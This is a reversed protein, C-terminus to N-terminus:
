ECPGGALFSGDSGRCATYWPRSPDKSAEGVKFPLRGTFARWALWHEESSMARSLPILLRWRPSEETSSSTSHAFWDMGRFLARMEDLSPVPDEDVDFVLLCVQEVNEKNRYDGTFVAPSWMRLQAKVARNEDEPPDDFVPRHQPRSLNEVLDEWTIFCRVADPDKDSSFTSIALPTSM